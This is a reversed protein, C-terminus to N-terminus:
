TLTVNQVNQQKRMKMNRFGKERWVCEHGGGPKSANRARKWSGGRCTQKEIEAKYIKKTNKRLLDTKEWVCEHKVCM